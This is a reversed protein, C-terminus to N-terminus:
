NNKALMLFNEEKGILKIKSQVDAVQDTDLNLQNAIIARAKIPNECIFALGDFWAAKLKEVTEQSRNAIESQVVLMRAIEQPFDASTAIAKSGEIRLPIDSYPPYSLVADINKDTVFASSALGTELIQIDLQQKLIRNNKLFLNLVENSEALVRKGALEEISNIGPKVILQDEGRSYNNILVTIKSSKELNEIEKKGVVLESNADLLGLQFDRVSDAYNDYWKLKANLNNAAFFNEEEAVMWPWWSPHNSFGIVIQKSASDGHNPFLNGALFTLAFSIALTGIFFWSRTKFFKFVM